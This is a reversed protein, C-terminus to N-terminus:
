LYIAFLTFYFPQWNKWHGGRWARRKETMPQGETRGKQPRAQLEAAVWLASQAHPAPAPPWNARPLAPTLAWVRRLGAKNEAPHESTEVDDDHYKVAAESETM